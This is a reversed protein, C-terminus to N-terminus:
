PIYKLDIERTQKNQKNTQQQQKKKKRELRFIDRHFVLSVSLARPVSPPPLELSPCM